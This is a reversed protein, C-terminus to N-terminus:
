VGKSIPYLIAFNRGTFNTNETMFSIYRYTNVGTNINIDNYEQTFFKDNETAFFYVITYQM